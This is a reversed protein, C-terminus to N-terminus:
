ERGGRSPLVQQHPFCLLALSTRLLPLARLRVAVSTGPEQVYYPKAYEALHIVWYLFTQNSSPREYSGRNYVDQM